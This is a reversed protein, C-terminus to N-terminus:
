ALTLLKSDLILSCDTLHQWQLSLTSTTSIVGLAPRDARSTGAMEEYARRGGTEGFLMSDVVTLSLTSVLEVFGIM